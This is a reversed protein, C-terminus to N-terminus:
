KAARKDRQAICQAIFAEIESELWGVARGGCLNVPKPFSGAAIRRYLASRSLAVRKEVEPRRIIRNQRDFAAPVQQAM